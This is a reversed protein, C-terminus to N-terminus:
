FFGKDPKAEQPSSGEPRAQPNGSDLTHTTHHATHVTPPQTLHAAFKETLASAGHRDIYCPTNAAKHTEYWTAHFNRAHTRADSARNLRSKCNAFNCEFRAEAYREAERAAAEQRLRHLEVKSDSAGQGLERTRKKRGVSVRIREDRRGDAPPVLACPPALRAIPTADSTALFTSALRSFCPGPPATALGDFSPLVSGGDTTWGMSCPQPHSVIGTFGRFLSSSMM